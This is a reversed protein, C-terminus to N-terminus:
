GEQVMRAVECMREVGGSFGDEMLQEAIELEELSLTALHEQAEALLEAGPAGEVGVPSVCAVARGFHTLFIIRGAAAAADVAADPDQQFESLTMVIPPLM